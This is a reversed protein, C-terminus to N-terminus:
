GRSWTPSSAAPSMAPPKDAPTQKRVQALQREYVSSAGVSAIGRFSNGADTYRVGNDLGFFPLGESCRRCGNTAIVTRYVVAPTRYDLSQHLREEYFFTFDEHTSANNDGGYTELLKDFGGKPVHKSGEFMMHEFLHAFGSRGRSRFLM